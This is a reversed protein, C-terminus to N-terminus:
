SHNGEDPQADRPIKTTVMFAILGVLTMTMGYRHLFLNWPQCLAIIGLIMLYQSAPELYKQNLARFTM